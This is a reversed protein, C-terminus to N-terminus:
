INFKKGLKAAKLEPSTECWEEFQHLTLNKLTIQQHIEKRLPYTMWVMRRLDIVAIQWRGGAEDRVLIGKGNYKVEGVDLSEFGLSEMKAIFDIRTERIEDWTVSKMWPSERLFLHVSLYRM